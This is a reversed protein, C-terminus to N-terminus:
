TATTMPPCSTPRIATVSKSGHHSRIRIGDPEQIEGAARDYSEISDRGGVRGSGADRAPEPRPTGAGTRFCDPVVVGAIQTLSRIRELRPIAGSM